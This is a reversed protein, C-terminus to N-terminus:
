HPCSRPPGQRTLLYAHYNGDDLDVGTAAINGQCNIGSADTLRINAPPTILQFYLNYLTGGVYLFARSVLSHDATLIANSTGVVEHTDNVGEASSSYGPDGALTGLDHMVGGNWLFAHSSNSGGGGYRQYQTISYGVVDGMSNVALASSSAGNGGIAVAGPLTGLDTVTNGKWLAAHFTPPLTTGSGPIASYGVQVESFSAEVINVTPVGGLSPLYNAPENLPIQWGLGAGPYDIAGLDTLTYQPAAAIVPLPLILCLWRAIKMLDGKIM